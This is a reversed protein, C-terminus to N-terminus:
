IWRPTRCHDIAAGSVRSIVTALHSGVWSQFGAVCRPPSHRWTCNTHPGGQVVRISADGTLHSVRACGRMRNTFPARGASCTVLEIRVRYLAFANPVM